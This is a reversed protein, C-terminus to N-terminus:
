SGDNNIQSNSVGVAMFYIYIDLKTRKQSSRKYLRSICVYIYLKSICVSIYDVLVFMSIYDVLVFM